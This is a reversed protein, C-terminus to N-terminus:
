QFSNYRLYTKRTSVSKKEMVHPLVTRIMRRHYHKQRPEVDESQSRVEERIQSTM